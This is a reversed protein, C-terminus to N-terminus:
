ADLQGLLEKAFRMPDLERMAWARAAGAYRRRRDADWALALLDKAAREADDPDVILGTVDHRVAEVAGGHSSGVAATGSLGAEVYALGFGEFGTRAPRSLMVFLDAHHFYAGLRETPVSGTFVVREALGLEHARRELVPRFPGDGVVYYRYPPLQGDIRALLRLVDDHGKREVVRSVTLLVFTGPPERYPNEAHLAPDYIRRPDYCPHLVQFEVDPLHARLLEGTAHSNVLVREARRLAARQLALRRSLLEGPASSARLETGHVYVVTPAAPAVRLGYLRAAADLFIVLGFRQRRMLRGFRLADFTEIPLTFLIQRPRVLRDHVVHALAGGTDPPCLLHLERDTSRMLSACCIELLSAIGGIEPPASTCVVLVPQRPM